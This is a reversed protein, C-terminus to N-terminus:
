NIKKINTKAFLVFKENKTKVNAYDFICKSNKTLLDNGEKQFIENDEESIITLKAYDAYQYSKKSSEIYPIFIRGSDKLANIIFVKEKKLNELSEDLISNFLNYKNERGRKDKYETEFNKKARKKNLFVKNEFNVEKEFNIDFLNNYDEMSDEESYNINYEDSDIYDANKNNNNNSNGLSNKNWKFASNIMKNNKYKKEEYLNLERKNEKIYHSMTTSLRKHNLAEQAALM